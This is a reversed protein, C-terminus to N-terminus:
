GGSLPSGLGGLVSALRAIEPDPSVAPSWPFFILTQGMRRLVFQADQPYGIRGTGSHLYAWFERGAADAADADGFEYVVVFTHSPDAPVVAQLLLRPTSLLTATEGPRFPVTPEQVQFGADELALSVRDRTMAAPSGAPRLSASVGPMAVRVGIGLVQLAIVAVGALIGLAAILAFWLPPGTRRGRAAPPSASGTM